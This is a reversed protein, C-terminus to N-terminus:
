SGDDWRLEYRRCGWTVSLVRPAPGQLRETILLGWGEPGPGPGGAERCAAVGVGWCTQWEPQPAAAGTLQVSNNM